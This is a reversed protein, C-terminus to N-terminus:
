KSRSKEFFADDKINNNKKKKFTQQVSFLYLVGSYNKM